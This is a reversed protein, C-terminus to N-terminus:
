GQAPRKARLGHSGAGHYELNVGAAQLEQILEQVQENAFYNKLSDAITPGITNIEAISEEDAAMIAALSGFHQALIRAAKAGVHRIGLGFM